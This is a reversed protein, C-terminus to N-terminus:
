SYQDKAKEQRDPIFDEEGEDFVRYLTAYIEVSSIFVPFRCDLRRVVRTAHDFFIEVAKFLDYNMFMSPVVLKGLDVNWISAYPPYLNRRAFWKKVMNLSIQM